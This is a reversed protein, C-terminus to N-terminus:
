GLWTGALRAGTQGIALQWKGIASNEFVKRVEASCMRLMNKFAPRIIKLVESANM